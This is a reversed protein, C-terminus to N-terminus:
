GYTERECEVECCVAVFRLVGCCVAVCILYSIVRSDGVRCSAAEEPMSRGNTLARKREREREGKRKRERTREREREGESDRIEEYRERERERRKRV